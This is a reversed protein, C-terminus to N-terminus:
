LNIPVPCRHHKQQPEIVKAASQSTILSIMCYSFRNTAASQAAPNVISSVLHFLTPSMM